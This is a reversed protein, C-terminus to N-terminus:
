LIKYDLANEQFKILGRVVLMEKIDLTKIVFPHDIMTHTGLFINFTPFCKRWQKTENGILMSM